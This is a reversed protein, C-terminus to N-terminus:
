KGGKNVVLLRLEAIIAQAQVSFDSYSDSNGADYATRAKAVLAAAQADLRDVRGALEGKVQGSDVAAEILVGVAKYSIEVALAAKEDSTTTDAVQGPSLPVGTPVAACASLLMAASMAALVLLKRM